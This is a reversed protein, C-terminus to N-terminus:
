RMKLQRIDNGDFQLLVYESYIRSAIRPTYASEIGEPSLNTSIITPKGNLLRSNIINYVASVTFQTSFESGLDDLILLDCQLLNKETDSYEARGFKENELRNLINQASCYVVGYGGKIVAGAIALSLHTKGLGTNGQLILSPSSRSFDMAYNKCFEFVSNMRQRPTIGNGSDPYYDTSFNQFTFKDLPFSNCLKEYAQNKLISKHCSCMRGNVFGKDECQPCTYKVKIYDEPFGNEKLLEARRQQASLSAAELQKVYPVSDKGMGLAKIVSLATQAMQSEIETIEPIKAIVEEHHEKQIKEAKARRRELERRASEYEATTYSM